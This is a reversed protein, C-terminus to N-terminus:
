FEHILGGKLTSLLKKAIYFKSFTTQQLNNLELFESIEKPLFEDYKVELIFQGTPLMPIPNISPEFFKDFENSVGIDMDFTVRVNGNEHIFPERTYEVILDKKLLNTTKAINFKNLLNNNSFDFLDDSMLRTYETKSLKTSLKNTYGNVKSKCELNILSDSANYTRIRYKKRDNIGDENEFFNSNYIDDFYISRITYKGYTANKDQSMIHILRSKLIAYDKMNCLFKKEVRFDM